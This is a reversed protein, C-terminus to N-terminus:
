LSNNLLLQCTINKKRSFIVGTCKQVNLVFGWDSCYKEIVFLDSQLHSTIIKINSGSRWISSDDAFLASATFESLQPFDNIFLSFLIPSLVCGQPTGNSPFFPLSHSGEIVVEASRNNLFNKIFNLCNGDINYKMLKLLLGDTWVLDFARSFDLFIAVTIGGASLSNEAETKLRIAHDLTSHHKRFGAQIPNIINYGELYWTLRDAVMKEFLKSFSSTLAIPRYSSPACKDNHSKLIPKILAHNWSKPIFGNIWCDNFIDLLASKGDYPLHCLMRMSVNDSGPASHINVKSLATNFENISFPLNLAESGLIPIDVVLEHINKIFNSATTNRIEVFNTPLNDNSSVHNFVEAFM